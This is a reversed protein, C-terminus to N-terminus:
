LTPFLFFVLTTLIGFGVFTGLWYTKRDSFVKVDKDQEMNGLKQTITSFDGCLKNYETSKSTKCGTLEVSGYFNCDCYKSYRERTRLMVDVKDGENNTFTYVSNIVEDKVHVNYAATSSVSWNTTKDSSVGSYEYGQQSLSTRVADLNENFKETSTVRLTSTCSTLGFVAAIIFLFRIKRM